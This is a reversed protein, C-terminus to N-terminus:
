MGIRYPILDSYGALIRSAEPFAYGVQEPHHADSGLCIPIGKGVARALVSESPFSESIPKRLGSTNYEMAMGAGAIEDLLEEVLEPVVEAVPYQSRKILDFHAVSDFIGSRIGAKMTRFYDSYRDAITASGFPFAFTWEGEPWGDVFHISMLYYSVQHRKRFDALYEEMGVIYDAEFGLHITLQPYEERLRMIEEIYPAVDAAAMRHEPDFSDRLPMHDCFCIEKLGQRLACQVYQEMEGSAHGCYSTHVHYDRTVM